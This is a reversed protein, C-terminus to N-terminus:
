EWGEAWGNVWNDAWENVGSQLVTYKLDNVGLRGSVAARGIWAKQPIATLYLNFPLCELSENNQLNDVM